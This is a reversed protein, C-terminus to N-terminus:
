IATPDPLAELWVLDDNQRLRLKEYTARLASLGQIGSEKLEGSYFAYAARLYRGTIIEGKASDVGVLIRESIEKSLSGILSFLYVEKMRSLSSLSNGDSADYRDALTNALAIYKPPVSRRRRWAAITSADIGLRIAIDKDSSVQLKQKIHNIDKDTNTM